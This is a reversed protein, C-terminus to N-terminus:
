GIIEDLRDLVAGDVAVDFKRAFHATSQAIAPLHAVTLTRPHAEGAVWDIYRRSDNAVRLGPANVLITQIYSEDPCILRYREQRRYHEALGRQDRHFRLLYEAAKGNACFWQSGFYCRFAESFPTLHRTLLPHALTFFRDSPAGGFLAGLHFRFTRYRRFNLRESPERRRAYSVERHEVYADFPSAALEALITGAPKVPYDAASLLVFWDPPDPRAYLAQIGRLTAEVISFRGWGTLEHPRVFSFNAGFGTGPLECKSFDHHCVIPPADFMRDLTGILRCLQPTNAHNLLVFGIRQPM